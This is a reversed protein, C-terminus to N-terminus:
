PIDLSVTASKGIWHTALVDTSGLVREFTEIKSCTPSARLFFGICKNVLLNYASFIALHELM